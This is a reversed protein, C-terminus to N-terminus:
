QTPNNNYGPKLPNVTEGDRYGNENYHYDHEHPQLNQQTNKDFHTHDFDQRNFQNGNEDYFVRSKVTGDPNLQEYISNTTSKQPPKSTGQNIPTENKPKNTESDGKVPNQWHANESIKAEKEVAEYNNLIQQDLGFQSITRAGEAAGATDMCEIMYYDEPNDEFLTDRVLNIGKKGNNAVGNGVDQLGELVDSLGMITGILAAVATGLAMLAAVVSTGALLLSISPIVLAAVGALVTGAIASVIIGSVIIGMGSFVQKWNIEHFFDNVQDATVECLNSVGSEKAARDMEEM